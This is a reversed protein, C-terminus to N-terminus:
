LIHTFLTHYALGVVVALAVGVIFGATGILWKRKTTLWALNGSLAVINEVAAFLPVAMDHHDDQWAEIRKVHAEMDRRLEAISLRLGELSEATSPAARREVFM